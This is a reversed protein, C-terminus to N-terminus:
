FQLISWLDLGPVEIVGDRIPLIAPSAGPSILRCTEALPVGLSELDVQLQLKGLPRVRDQLPDYDYNLLHVVASGAKVRPLVRLKTETQVYVAPQVAGVADELVRYVARHRAFDDILERDKSLFEEWEPILLVPSARLDSVTLPRDVLEDGALVIKYSLNRAALQRGMDFWRERDKVFSRHPVVLALDGHAEYGDFLSSNAKVFRYLPAFKDAPGDYWHTGKESTYCWQRHPAMLSHGAAYSLAIWGRVLGPLNHEKIFAWDQGSATSALPRAVADALRYAVLPLDSFRRKEAEHETEASFLSLSKYDILHRPWLLGANAALPVPRGATEAALRRLEEMFSAAARCQYLVWQPWLPHDTVRRQNAGGAKLWARMVVRYDFTTPNPVGLEERDRAPLSQLYSAFGAVCRDCFCIGLWLGGATGMHDDIHIGHAGADITEVVREKIYERFNPQQTCCWWYPAGKHQHDTLWPVKVPHGQVDRCLGEEYTEPFREYYRSFETVMGVSGFFKIGWAEELSRPTPKGGWALFTAGYEEYTKRDAQYMFVVDSRRLIRDPAEFFAPVLLLYIMLPLLPSL